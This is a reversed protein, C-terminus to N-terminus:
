VTPVLAHIWMVAVVALMVKTHILLFVFIRAYWGLLDAMQRVLGKFAEHKGGKHSFDVGEEGPPVTYPINDIDINTDALM